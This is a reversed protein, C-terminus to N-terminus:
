NICSSPLVMLFIFQYYLYTYVCFVPYSPFKCQRGPARRGRVEGQFGTQLILLGWGGLPGWSIEKVQEGEGRARGGLSSPTSEASLTSLHSVVMGALRELIFYVNEGARRLRRRCPCRSKFKASREFYVCKHGVLEALQSRYSVFDFIFM